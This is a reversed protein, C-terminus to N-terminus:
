AKTGPVRRLIGRQLELTSLREEVAELRKAMDRAVTIEKAVAKPYKVGLWMAFGLFALAACAVAAIALATM